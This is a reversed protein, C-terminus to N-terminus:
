ILSFPGVNPSASAKGVHNQKPNHVQEALSAPALGKQTSSGELFMLRGHLSLLSSEYILPDRGLPVYVSGGPCELHAVTDIYVSMATECSFVLVGMLGYKFGQSM